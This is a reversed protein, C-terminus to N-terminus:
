VDDWPWFRRRSWKEERLNHGGDDGGYKATQV